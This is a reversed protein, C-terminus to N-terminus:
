LMNCPVLGLEDSGWSSRGTEHSRDATIIGFFLFANQGFATHALPLLNVIVYKLMELIINQWSIWNVLLTLINPLLRM